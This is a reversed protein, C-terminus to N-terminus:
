CPVLIVERRERGGFEVPDIVFSALLERIRGPRVFHGFIHGSPGIVIAAVNYEPYRMRFISRDQPDVTTHGQSELWIKEVPKVIHNWSQDFWREGFKGGTYNVRTWSAGLYLGTVHYDYNVDGFARNRGMLSAVSFVVLSKAALKFRKAMPRNQVDDTAATMWSEPGFDNYVDAM